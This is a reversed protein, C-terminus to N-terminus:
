LFGFQAAWASAAFAVLAVMAGLHGSSANVVTRGACGGAFTAGVGFVLGGALAGVWDFRGSRYGSEALAVMGAGDLAQAAALAVAVAALWAQLQRSDRILVYNSVAAILCFRSRQSIAGFAIGLALGGAAALTTPSLSFPM